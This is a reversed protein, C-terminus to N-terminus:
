AAAEALAEGDEVGCTYADDLAEDIAEIDSEPLDNAGGTLEHILRNRINIVSETPM